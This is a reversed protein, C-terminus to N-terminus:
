RRTWASAIRGWKSWGAAAGGLMTVPISSQHALRLADLVEDSSTTELLWQAPGGVKFTTLAALAAELRVRTVGFRQVLAEHFTM